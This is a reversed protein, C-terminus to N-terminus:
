EPDVRAILEPSGAHRDEWPEVSYSPTGGLLAIPGKFLLAMPKGQENADRQAHAMAIHLATM